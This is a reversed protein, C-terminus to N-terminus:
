HFKFTKNPDAGLILMSEAVELNNTHVAVVLVTNKIKKFCEMLQLVNGNENDLNEKYKANIRKNIFKKVKKFSGEKRLQSLKIM